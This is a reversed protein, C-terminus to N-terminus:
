RAFGRSHGSPISQRERLVVASSIIPGVGPISMLRQCSEEQKAMAEVESSVDAIREDLSRWDQILGSILNIIRPSLADSKASLIEPLAKRLPM